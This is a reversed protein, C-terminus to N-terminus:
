DRSEEPARIVDTAQSLETVCPLAAQEPRAAQEAREAPTWAVKDRIYLPVLQAPDIAEGAAFRAAGLRALDRADPLATAADPALTLGALACLLPQAAFGRGVGLWGTEGGRVGGGGGGLGVSGEGAGGGLRLGLAAASGLAELVAQATSVAPPRLACVGRRVDAGYCGWYVENMRADLCALVRTAGGAVGPLALAELTSVAVVPLNAGFALGQAAAVTIRVGTFAGPGVSCVIADLATLALAAEALVEDVLVLLREAHGRGPEECRHIIRADIRRANDRGAAGSWPEDFLAVSCAETAADLALLRM